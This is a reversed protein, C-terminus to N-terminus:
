IPNKQPNKFNDQLEKTFLFDMTKTMNQFSICVIDSTEMFSIEDPNKITKSHTKL